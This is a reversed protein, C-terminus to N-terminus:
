NIEERIVTPDCYVWVQRCDKCLFSRENAMKGREKEERKDLVSHGTKNQRIDKMFSYFGTARFSGKCYFARSPAGVFM